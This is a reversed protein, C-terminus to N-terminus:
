PMRAHARTHPSWARTHRERWGTPFTRGGGGPGEGKREIGGERPSRDAEEEGGEGEGKMEIGGERPSHDAREGVGGGEGKRGTPRVMLRSDVSARLSVQAGRVTANNILNSTSSSIPNRITVSRDGSEQQYITRSRFNYLVLSGAVGSWFLSIM